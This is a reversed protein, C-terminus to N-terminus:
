EYREINKKNYSEVGFSIERCGSNYLIKPFNKEIYKRDIRTEVMWKINIDNDILYTALKM